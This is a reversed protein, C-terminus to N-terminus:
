IVILPSAAYSDVWPELTMPRIPPVKDDVWCLQCDERREITQVPTNLFFALIVDSYSLRM